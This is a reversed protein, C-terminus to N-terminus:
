EIELWVDELLGSPASANDGVIVNRSSNTVRLLFQNKGPRIFPTVEIRYPPWPRLGANQTNVELELVDGVNGADLFVRRGAVNEDFVMEAYYAGTGSFHPHGQEEWPGTKIGRIPLLCPTDGSFDLKFDGALRGYEELGPQPFWGNNKIVIEITHTGPKCRHRLDLVRFEIDLEWPLEADLVHGDLLVIADTQGAMMPRVAPRVTYAHRPVGDLILRLNGIQEPMMFQTTYHLETLWDNTATQLSWHNLALFNGDQPTFHWLEQCLKLRQAPRFESAPAEAVPENSDVVVLLSGM